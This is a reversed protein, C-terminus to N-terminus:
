KIFGTFIKHLEGYALSRGQQWDSEKDSATVSKELASIQLKRLIHAFSEGDGRVPSDRAIRQIVATDREDFKIM